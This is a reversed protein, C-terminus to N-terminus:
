YPTKAHTNTSNNVPAFCLATYSCPIFLTHFYSKYNTIMAIDNDLINLAAFVLTQAYLLIYKEM